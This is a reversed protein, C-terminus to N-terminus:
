FFYKEIDFQRLPKSSHLDTSVPAVRELGTEGNGTERKGM